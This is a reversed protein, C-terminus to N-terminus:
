VVHTTPCSVPFVLNLNLLKWDGHIKSDATVADALYSFVESVMWDM